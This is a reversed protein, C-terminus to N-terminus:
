KEKLLDPRRTLTKKYSQESRWEKIKKHNGSLLVEPVRMHRFEEPRTYQPHELLGDEQNFSEDVASESCGLAGPILRIVADSIVMAALNGNSLIYDGISIERDVIGDLVRQDVGEYHGCLLILHEEEVLEEALRQNFVEGSPSMYIVKSTPTKLDEVARFITECSMIMGPGGGYPRDDVRRHKDISYERLNHISIKVLDSEVARGIISSSMPETFVEPFLSM